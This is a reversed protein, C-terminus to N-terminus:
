FVLTTSYWQYIRWKTMNMIILTYLCILYHLGEAFWLIYPTTRFGRRLHQWQKHWLITQCRWIKSKEVNFKWLKNWFYLNKVNKVRQYKSWGIDEWGIKSFWRLNISIDCNKRKRGNLFYLFAIRTCIRTEWEFEVINQCKM